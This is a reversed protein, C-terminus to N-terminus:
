KLKEVSKPPILKINFNLKRVDDITSIQISVVSVNVNTNTRAVTSSLLEISLKADHNRPPIPM